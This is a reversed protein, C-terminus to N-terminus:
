LSTGQSRFQLAEALHASTVSQSGQLDAITRAVRLLRDHARGTLGMRDVARALLARGEADPRALEALSSAELDANAKDPQGRRAQLCRAGAVREAVRATQEGPPGAIEDYTLAQVEVQLDIRDLLPGSIRGQYRHVAAPTCACPM